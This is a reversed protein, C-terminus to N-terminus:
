QEKLPTDEAPSNNTPLIKKNPTLTINVRQNEKTDTQNGDGNKVRSANDSSGAIVIRKLTDYTIKQSSVQNGPQVLEANITMVLINKSATYIMHESEAQIPDGNESVHNYRAPKGIVTIREIEKNNQELTVKDGTLVLEGQSIRVNGTYISKGTEINLHVHDANIHVKEVPANDTINDTKDSWANPQWCLLILGALLRCRNRQGQCRHQNLLKTMLHFIDMWM